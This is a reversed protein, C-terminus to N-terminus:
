GDTEWLNHLNIAELGLLIRENQIQEQAAIIYEQGSEATVSLTTTVGSLRRERGFRALDFLEDDIGRKIAAKIEELDNFLRDTPHPAHRGYVVRRLFLTLKM